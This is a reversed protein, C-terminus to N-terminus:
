VVKNRQDGILSMGLYDLLFGTNSKRDLVDGAWDVDVFCDLVDSNNNKCYTLKLDRTLYL